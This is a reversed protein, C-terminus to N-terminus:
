LHHQQQQQDEHRTSQSDPFCLKGDVSIMLTPLKLDEEEEENKGRDNHVGRKGVVSEVNYVSSRIEIMTPNRDSSSNSGGDGGGAGGGDASSSSSSSSGDANQDDDSSM